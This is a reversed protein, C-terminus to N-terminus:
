VPEPVAHAPAPQQVPAAEVKPTFYAGHEPLVSLAVKTKERILSILRNGAEPPVFCRSPDFKEPVWRMGLMVYLWNHEKFLNFRNPFDTAQPPRRSWHALRQRLTDPLSTPDANDRWFATDRRRTLLYHIKIFDIIERYLTIMHDNYADAFPQLAALYLGRAAAMEAAITGGEQTPASPALDLVCQLADALQTAGVEILFIGTSELPEVFGGSLGISAVNQQWFRKSHGIRMKLHRAELMEAPKGIHRRLETEAADASIHNSSYVYGIGSRRQLDIEWVWGASKATTTTYPRIFRRGEAPVRLAVARDCFLSDGCETFGIGLRKNMLLSAFGTCDVFFDAELMGNAQTTVSTVAGDDAVAVDLVDDIVRIAGRSVATQALFEALREADLHYAYGVPGEFQPMAPSRPAREAAAVRVQACVDDAYHAGPRGARASLWWLSTNFTVVNSYDFPHFYFNSDGPTGPEHLWDKFLIGQKFTAGTARMFADEPIALKLLLKRLTPLTAEGVGLIGIRKSEVLTIRVPCAPNQGLRHLLVNATIWGATGGGVVVVSLPRM